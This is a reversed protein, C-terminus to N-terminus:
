KPTTTSRDTPFTTVVLSYREVGDTGEDDSVFDEIVARLRDVLETHREPTMVLEGLSLLSLDRFPLYVGDEIAQRLDGKAVDFLSSLAVSVETPAAAEIFAPDIEFSRAIVQYRTETRAGVQRTAVPRILGADALQNVHHYLRTVPVEMQEAVEAVTRPERFRRLLPGRTPHAVHDVFELDSFEHREDPESDPIATWGEETM